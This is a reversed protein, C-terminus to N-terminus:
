AFDGLPLSPSLLYASLSSNRMEGEGFRRKEREGIPSLCFILVGKIKSVKLKLLSPSLKGIGTSLDVDYHLYNTVFHVNILM